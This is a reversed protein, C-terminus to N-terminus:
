AIGTYTWWYIHQLLTNSKNIGTLIRAWATKFHLKFTSNSKSTSLSDFRKCSLSFWNNKTARFVPFLKNWEKHVARAQSHFSLQEIVQCHALKSSISYNITVSETSFLEVTYSSSIFACDRIAIAEQVRKGRTNIKYNGHARVTFIFLTSPTVLVSLISWNQRIIPLLPDWFWSDIGDIKLKNWRERM